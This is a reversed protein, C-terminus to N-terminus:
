IAFIINLNFWRRRIPNLFVYFGFIAKLLNLLRMLSPSKRFGINIRNDYRKSKMRLIRLAFAGITNM